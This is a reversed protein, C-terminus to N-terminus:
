AVPPQDLGVTDLSTRSHGPGTSPEAIVSFSGDTELAVAAVNMLNLAGGQRIAAMIEDETVRQKKMAQRLFEGRHFLLTPESKVIKNVWPFRVSLSTVVYQLFLLLAFALLGEALPVDKSLLATALTSGLAVTVVFDFANMSALTRKGSIRLLVVLSFYALVGVVLLREIAYWDSFFFM